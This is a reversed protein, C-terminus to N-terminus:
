IIKKKCLNQIFEVKASLLAGSGFIMALIWIWIGFLPINVLVEYIALGLIFSPLIKKRDKAHNRVPLVLLGLAMAVFVRALYLIAFWIASLLVALPIFLGLVFVLLIIIPSIILLEMGLIFSRAPNSIIYEAPRLLFYPSIWYILAGIVLLNLISSLIAWYNFQTNTPQIEEDPAIEPAHYLIEGVVYQDLGPLEEPATYQLGLGVQAQDKFQLVNADLSSFGAVQGDFILTGGRFIFNEGVAGRFNTLLSSINVSGGIKANELFNVNGGAGIVDDGVRGNLEVDGGFVKLDDGINGEISVQGGFVILDQDIDETIRVVGGAVIVDGTVNSLMDVTWGAGYFDDDIMQDLFLNEGYDFSIAQVSLPLLALFMLCFKRM